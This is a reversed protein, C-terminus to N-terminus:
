SQLPNLVYLNKAILTLSYFKSLSQIGSSNDNVDNVWLYRFSEKNKQIWEFDYDHGIAFGSRKAAYLPAPDDPWGLTIVGSDKETMSTVASTNIGADRLKLSQLYMSGEPNKTSNLFSYGMFSILLAIGFTAIKKSFLGNPTSLSLLPIVLVLFLLPLIIAIQYYDHITNLNIFILLYISCVLTIAMVFRRYADKILIVLISLIFLTKIPVSVSALRNLIFNFYDYFHTYQESSGFYWSTNDSSVHIYRKPDGVPTFSKVYNQWIFFPVISVLFTSSVQVTDAWTIKKSTAVSILAYFLFGFFASPGKVMLGVSLFISAFVINDFKFLHISSQKPLILLLFAAFSGFFLAFWDILGTTSWLFIYPNVLVSTIAISLFIAPVQFVRKSVQLLLIVNLVFFILGAIRISRDVSLTSVGILTILKHIGYAVGQFAPFEFPWPSNLGKIPVEPRLFNFGNEIWMRVPFATHAQRFAHPGSIPRATFSFLYLFLFLLPAFYLKDIFVRVMPFLTRRSQIQKL